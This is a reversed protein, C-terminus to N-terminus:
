NVDNLRENREMDNIFAKLEDPEFKVAAYTRNTQGKEEASKKMLDTYNIVQEIDKSRFLINYSDDMSSSWEIREISLWM